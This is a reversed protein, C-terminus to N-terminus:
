AGAGSGSSSVMIRGSGFSGSPRRHRRRRELRRGPRRTVLVDVLAAARPAGRRVLRELLVAELAALAEDRKRALAVRPRDDPRALGRHPEPDGEHGEQEDRERRARDDRERRGVVVLVAPRRDPARRPGGDGHERRGGAIVTSGGVVGDVIVIGVKGVVDVTKGVVVVNGVVVVWGVVVVFPVIWNQGGPVSPNVTTRLDVGTLSPRPGASDDACCARFAPRGSTPM